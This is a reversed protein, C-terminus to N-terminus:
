KRTTRHKFDNIIKEMKNENEIWIAQPMGRFFTLQRKAYNRTKKKILEITENKDLNDIYYDYVEKYGISKFCSYEKTIGQKILNEVEQFLGQNVMIDVRKNIKEYIVQRDDNIVYVDYNFDNNEKQNINKEAQLKELARVIRIKDNKNLKCAVEPAKECLTAYAGELGNDTNEINCLIQNRIENDKPTNDFDYDNILAKIYLGTGGCIIPLKGRALIENIKEIALCKFEAVNFEEFPTKIDILHHKIGQMEDNTIKASGIDLGVYVQSSDASIVEGNLKKALNVALSSKGSATPGIIIMVDRM